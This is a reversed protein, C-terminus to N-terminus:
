AGGGHHGLSSGKRLRGRKKADTKGVCSEALLSVLHQSVALLMIGADTGTNTPRLLSLGVLAPNPCSTNHGGGNILDQKARALVFMRLHPVALRPGFGIPPGQRM